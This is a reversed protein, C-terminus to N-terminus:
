SRGWASSSMLYENYYLISGNDNHRFDLREGELEELKSINGACYDKLRYSVSELRTRLGGYRRDLVEWGFPKHRDFWLERNKLWMVRVKEILKPIREDAIRMLEDMNKEDYAKKIDVGISCKDEVADCLAIYFQLSSEWEPYKGIFTRLYDGRERFHKPFNCKKLETDFKGLLTDQWMLYKSPNILDDSLDFQALLAETKIEPLNAEDPVDINAMGLIMNADGGVCYNYRKCVDEVSPSINYCHEAYQQFGLLDTLIDRETSDDGWTTAYAHKINMEKCALLAAESAPFTHRYNVCFGHWDHVAGAFHMERGSDLHAKFWTKYREKNTPGYSANVLEINKPIKAAIDEPIEANDYAYGHASGKLRFFMDSWILPTLGMKECIEAVKILHELYIEIRPRYGHKTMYKGTGLSMTEDFGIHIRKSRVPAASARIMAEIFEYTKEEGVLLCDGTDAIEKFASWRLTNSLHGLAQMAPIIEVGFMDAYDDLEKVEDYSYRGRLYGFYPYEPVEYSEESYMMFMNLGMMAMKRITFKMTEINCLAGHSNDYMGGCTEFYPQENKAFETKGESVAEILLGLARFFEVKKDYAIKAEKGNYCVYLGMDQKSVEVPIGDACIEFGHEGSIISLPALLEESIGIFNFKM